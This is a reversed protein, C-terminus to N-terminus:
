KAVERSKFFFYAVLFVPILFGLATFGHIVLLRWPIDYGHAVYDVDSLRGFDPLVAAVGALVFQFVRDSWQIVNTTTGPNLDVVMNSQQVLRVLSETPGGGMPDAALERIFNTFFGGLLTAVTALMAVSGNLFTSFMVGVTVVLVMQLWIGVYGKAFNMAFSAETARLYLDAQAMGFYQERDLCKLEIEVKGDDVLDDFLDLTRGEADLLKRPIFESGVYFERASFFRSASTLGTRPNRVRLAGQVPRDIIGKHTRFVGITMEVPLGEPFLQPTVGDFQWVAAALTGGPIFSRYEWEDGVSVGKATAAGHRDFFRLQGYIPVRAALMGRPSGIQFKTKSDDLAQIPHDHGQVETLQVTGDAYILVEHSHGQERSTKGRQVVPNEVKGPDSVVELSEVLVEHTHDLGRVVFVYSILGTVALLVTCTAVFGLIRGLIIESTRVPKTVITHITRQAIDAPLSFVSLFLALILVLYSTTTMVFSLYLRSLDRSEADLYWGAFLLVLIFVAFAVLVKRHISEHVALKALALVRRPSMLVLDAVSTYLNHAIAVPTEPGHRMVTVILAIIGAFGGFLVVVGLWSLLAAPLWQWFSPPLTELVM